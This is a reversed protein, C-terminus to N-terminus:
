HWKCVRSESRWASRATETGIVILKGAVYILSPWMLSKIATRFLAISTPTFNRCTPKEAELGTAFIGNKMPVHLSLMLAALAIWPLALPLHKVVSQTLARSVSQWHQYNTLWVISNAWSEPQGYGVPRASRIWLIHEDIFSTYKQSTTTFSLEARERQNLASILKQQLELLKTLVEKRSRFLEQLPTRLEDVRESSLNMQGLTTDAAEAPDEVEADLDELRYREVRMLVTDEITGANAFRKSLTNLKAKDQRLMVGMADSLKVTDVRNKATDLDEQLKQQAKAAKSAAETARSVKDITNQLQITLSKNFNAFPKLEDMDSNELAQEATATEKALDKIERQRANKLLTQLEEAQQQLQKVKRTELELQVKILDSTALYADQESRLAVLKQQVMQGEAGLGLDRARTMAEAEGAIAPVDLQEALSQLKSEADAVEAPLKQMRVERRAPEDALESQSKRTTKIRATLNRLEAEIQDVKADRPLTSPEISAQTSEERQRAKELDDEASQIMLQFEAAEKTLREMEKLDHSAQDYINKISTLTDEDLDTDGQAAKLGQDLMPQEVFEAERRSSPEQADSPQATTLSLLLVTWLMCCAISLAQISRRARFYTM